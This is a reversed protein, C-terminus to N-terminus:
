FRATVGGLIRRGNVSGGYISFKRDDLLNTGTLFVKFNNNIDYGANADLTNSPEIFGAFVGAAWPYGKVMRFSASASLGRDAYSLSLTGKTKPTNALLSDGV